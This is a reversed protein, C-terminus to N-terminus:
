AAGGEQRADGMRRAWWDRGRDDANDAEMAVMLALLAVRTRRSKGGGPGPTCFEVSGVGSGGCVSVYVDNDGDLGVRISDSPSMDGIRGVDRAKPWVIPAGQPSDTARTPTHEPLPSHKPKAAQKARIAEVKTWIRALETEGAAHMDLGNALCLAALTVMVGGVEQAPEGVPRGFVYDVLQHAESASCDCSQVLELAEELFRHNREERDGAITPGFCEMLWPQVRQQFPAPEATWYATADPRAAMDVGILRPADPADPAPMPADYSRSWAGRVKGDWGYTGHLETIHMTRDPAQPAAALLAEYLAGATSTGDDYRHDEPDSTELDVVRRIADLIEQTAKAPMLRWGEPVAPPVGADAQPRPPHAYLPLSLYGEGCPEESFWHGLELEPEDPFSVWYGVPEAEQAAARPRPTSRTLEHFAFAGDLFAGAFKRAMNQCEMERGVYIHRNSDGVAVAHRHFMSERSPVVKYRALALADMEEHPYAPVAPEAEQAAPAALAARLNEEAGVFGALAGHVNCGDAMAAEMQAYAALYSVCAVRLAAPLSAAGSAATTDTNTTDAM